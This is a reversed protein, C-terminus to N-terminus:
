ELASVIRPFVTNTRWSVKNPTINYIGAYSSGSLSTTVNIRPCLVTEGKEGKQGTSGIPGTPGTPGKMGPAGRPGQSGNGGVPGTPGLILFIKM